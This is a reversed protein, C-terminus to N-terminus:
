QVLRRPTTAASAHKAACWVCPASATKGPARTFRYGKRGRPATFWTSVSCGGNRVEPAPADFWELYPKRHTDPNFDPQFLEDTMTAVQQMQSDPMKGNPWIYEREWGSANIAALMLILVFVRKKM